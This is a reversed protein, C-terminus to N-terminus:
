SIYKSLLPALRRKAAAPIMKRDTLIAHALASGCKCERSDGLARLTERLVTQVNETNKNLNAIIDPVTVSDHSPHWCDYDTIMAISAYCIEAERALKAETLNTMGIVDFGMQRYARSEALTSFQPGEMCVYTGSKHATVGARGCAEAVHKSLRSCTPKDFGVHAVIGGGFFTAIRGRTRDFFQDVILFELPHLDERLSGVASVSLIQEVGLVKMAYINARFNIESPSIRHGRGHRALFAVRKGELTGLMLADSPEGFPTRVRVERTEALGTMSYLGSGGIIGIQAKNSASKSPRKARKKM